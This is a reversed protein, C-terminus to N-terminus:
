PQNPDGFGFDDISLFEWDPLYNTDVFDTLAATLDADGGDEYTALLGALQDGIIDIAIRRERLYDRSGQIGAIWIKDGSRLARDGAASTRFSGTATQRGRKTSAARRAVTHVAALHAPSPHQTGAAWRRVTGASVGLDQAAARTNVAGGRPGPGYAAVLMGTLSGAPDTDAAARGSLRRYITNRLAGAAQSVAHRVTRKAVGLGHAAADVNVTNEVVSGYPTLDDTSLPARRRRPRPPPM